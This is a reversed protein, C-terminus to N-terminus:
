WGPPLDATRKRASRDATGWRRGAPGPQGAVLVEAVAAIVSCGGANATVAVELADVRAVGDHLEVDPQGLSGAGRGAWSGPKRTRGGNRRPGRDARTGVLGDLDVAGREVARQVLERHGLAAGAGAPHDLVLSGLQSALPLTGLVRLAADEGFLVGFM